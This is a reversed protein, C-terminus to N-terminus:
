NGACLYKRLAESLIRYWRQVADLQEAKAEWRPLLPERDITAANVDGSITAVAQADMAPWAPHDADIELRTARASIDVHRARAAM